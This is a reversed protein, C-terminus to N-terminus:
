DVRLMSQGGARIRTKCVTNGSMPLGVVKVGAATLLEALTNGDADDALATVLAVDSEVRAALVAALGAGGPRRWVRRTDVVAVPAEPSLRTANGEIDVDLMSDGVIVIPEAVAPEWCCTTSPSACRTCWCCTFRRCPPPIRRRSASPTM